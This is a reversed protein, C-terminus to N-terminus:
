SKPKNLAQKSALSGPPLLSVQGPKGTVGQSDIAYFPQQNPAKVMAPVILDPSSHASLYTKNPAASFMSCGNLCVVLSGLVVSFVTRM